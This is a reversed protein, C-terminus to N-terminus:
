EGKRDYYDSEDDWQEQMEEHAHDRIWRRTPTSRMEDAIRAKEWERHASM